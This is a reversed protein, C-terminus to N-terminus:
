KGTAVMMMDVADRNHTLARFLLHQHEPNDEALLIRTLAM